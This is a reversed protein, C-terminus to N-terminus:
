IRESRDVAALTRDVALRMEILLFPDSLTKLQPNLFRQASSAEAFGRQFLLTAMSAPCGLDRALEAISLAEHSAQPKPTIWHPTMPVIGSKRHLTGQRLVPPM